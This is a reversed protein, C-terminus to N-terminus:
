AEQVAERVQEEHQGPHLVPPGAHGVDLPLGLPLQGIYVTPQEMRLRLVTGIVMGLLLSLLLALLVRRLWRVGRGRM